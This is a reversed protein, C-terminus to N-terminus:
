VDMPHFSSILGLRPEKHHQKLSKNVRQVHQHLRYLLLNVDSFFTFAFRLSVHTLLPTFLYLTATNKRGASQHFSLLRHYYRQISYEGNRSNNNNNVNNIYSKTCFPILLSTYSNVVLHCDYHCTSIDDDWQLIKKYIKQNLWHKAYTENFFISNHTM